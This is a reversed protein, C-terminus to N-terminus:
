KLEKETEPWFYAIIFLMSIYGLHSNNFYRSFYWFVFLFLGYMIWVSKVSSHKKQWWLLGGLMPMGIIAEWIWFPYYAHVDRIYGVQHLLAGWGYGAVPYSHSTNGSLYFITSDLFAKYNWLFFPAVIVSFVAAFPIMYWIVKKIDKTQTYLFFAYFPLVFWSSQKVTFALALVVSSWLFHKKFLFVLSIFLFTLMFIDDRGELLYGLNAPNFALLVLFQRKKEPDKVLISAAILLLAFLFLLPVRADFFGIGHGMILYFPVAFLVYFPEMVFHYLAPNIETDSYHWDKLPTSFYNTAYPNQGHVLFKIAAEQQLVIDHVNYIPSTQHRVIIAATFASGLVTIITMWLLINKLLIKKSELFFHSIDLFIYLFLELFIVGFLWIPTDGWGLRYTMIFPIVLAFLLISDLKITKM